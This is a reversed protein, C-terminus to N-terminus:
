LLVAPRHQRWLETVLHHMARRTLADLLGLARRAAAPARVLAPWRYESRRGSHCTGPWADARAALHVEALANAAVARPSDVRLGPVINRRVRRWPLLRPQQFAMSVRGPVVSEGEIETDTGALVRLLISKGSGSRGLLAVFEGRRITLELRDLVRRGGFAKVLGRVHVSPTQNILENTVSAVASGV